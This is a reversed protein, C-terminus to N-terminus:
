FDLSQTVTAAGGSVLKKIEIDRENKRTALIIPHHHYALHISLMKAGKKHPKLMALYGLFHQPSDKM